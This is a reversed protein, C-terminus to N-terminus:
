RGLDVAADHYLKILEAERLRFDTWFDLANPDLSKLTRETEV